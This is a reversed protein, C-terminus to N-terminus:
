QISNKGISHEIIIDYRKLSEEGGGISHEFIVDYRKLSEGGGESDGIDCKRLGKGRTIDCMVYLVSQRKVFLFHSKFSISSFSM